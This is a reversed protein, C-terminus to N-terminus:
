SCGDESACLPCCGISAKPAAVPGSVGPVSGSVGTACIWWSDAGRSRLSPAKRVLHSKWSM